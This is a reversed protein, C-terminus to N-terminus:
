LGDGRKVLFRPEFFYPTWHPGAMISEESGMARPWCGTFLAAARVGRRRVVAGDPGQGAEREHTPEVPDPEARM